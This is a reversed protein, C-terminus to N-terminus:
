CDSLQQLRMAQQYQASHLDVNGRLEERAGTPGVPLGEQLGLGPSSFLGSETIEAM